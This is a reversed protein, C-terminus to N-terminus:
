TWRWNRLFFLSFFVINAWTHSRTLHHQRASSSTQWTISSTIRLANRNQDATLRHSGFIHFFQMSNMMAPIPFVCLVDVGAMSWASFSYIGMPNACLAHAHITWNLEIDSTPQNLNVGIACKDDNLKQQKQDKHLQSNRVILKIGMQYPILVSALLESCVRENTREYNSIHCWIQSHNKTKRRKRREAIWKPVNVGNARCM